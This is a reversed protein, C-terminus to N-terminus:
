AQATAGLWKRWRSWIDMLGGPLALVVVIFLIGFIIPHLNVLTVALQERVVIYFLAGLVPGFLTGLGGVFTILLADFTWSPNFAAQPYFSVQYFAYTAGALGAFFGSLGTAALKHLTTRVGTAQAAEEDERTALLGLILRSRLLVYSALVTAVAVAFALYYREGLDYHAILDVPLTSVKPMLNGVTIRLAEAMALTGISFYAGRLRFTPIGIILAFVAATLGAAPLAAAFPVSGIWLFRMVLVGTGFFAAHGLSIQGAYGALINWSQSLSIGLFVLFLLNLVGQDRVWQPILIALLVMAALVVQAPVRVSQVVRRAQAAIGGGLLAQDKAM